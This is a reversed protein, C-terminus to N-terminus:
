LDIKEVCVCVCVCMYIYIYIYLTCVFGDQFRQLPLVLMHIIKTPSVTERPCKFMYVVNTKDLFENSPSSNYSIILNSTKFKNYYIIRWKKKKSLILQSFM